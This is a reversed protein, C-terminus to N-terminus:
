VQAPSTLVFLILNELSLGPIIISNCPLSSPSSLNTCNKFRTSNASTSHNNCQEMDSDMTMHSDGCFFMFYFMCAMSPLCVLLSVLTNRKWRFHNRSGDLEHKISHFVM